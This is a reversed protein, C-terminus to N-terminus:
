LRHPHGGCVRCVRQTGNGVVGVELCNPVCCEWGGKAVWGVGVFVVCSIINVCKGAFCPFDCLCVVSNLFNLTNSPSVTGPATMGERFTWARTEKEGSTFYTRLGLQSYTARILARLGGEEVGLAALYEQAEDPELQNLEAEVQASMVIVDCGQEAALKRLAQM